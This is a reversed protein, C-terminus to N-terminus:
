LLGEKRAIEIIDEILQKISEDRLSGTTYGQLPTNVTKEEFYVEFQLHAGNILRKIDEEPEENQEFILLYKTEGIYSFVVVDEDTKIRYSWRILIPLEDDETKPFIQYSVNLETNVWGQGSLNDLGDFHIAKFPFYLHTM